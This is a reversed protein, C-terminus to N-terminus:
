MVEVRELVIVMVVLLGMAAAAVAALTVVAVTLLPGARQEVERRPRM